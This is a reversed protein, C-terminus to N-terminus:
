LMLLALNQFSDSMAVFKGSFVWKRSHAMFSSNDIFPSPTLSLLLALKMSGYHLRSSFSLLSPKKNQPIDMGYSASDQKHTSFWTDATM